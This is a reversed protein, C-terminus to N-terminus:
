VTEEADVDITGPEGPECEGDPDEDSECPPKKERFFAGEETTLKSDTWKEFYYVFVGKAIAAVPIALLLGFFGALASGALLSFIVLLPHLDVQESMVRPTIFIDTLQQSGAIILVAVLALWPSVFAAAIAAIVEAVVPGFWPIINLVGALLGLVLAYPVGVATLGITVLVATAASVVAQGRLYGGLVSSVKAGSSQRRM